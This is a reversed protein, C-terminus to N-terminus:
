WWGKKKEPKPEPRGRVNSLQRAAAIQAKTPSKRAAKMEKAKKAIKEQAAKREASAKAKTAAARSKALDDKRKQEALQAAMNSKFGGAARVCKACHTSGRPIRKDCGVCRNAM